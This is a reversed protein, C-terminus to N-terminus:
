GGAPVQQITVQPAQGVHNAARPDKGTIQWLTPQGALRVGGLNLDFSHASETANVVAITLYKRDPTLAAFM